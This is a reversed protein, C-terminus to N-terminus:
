GPLYHGRRRSVFQLGEKRSKCPMKQPPSFTGDNGVQDAGGVRALQEFAKRARMFKALARDWDQEQEKLCSGLM